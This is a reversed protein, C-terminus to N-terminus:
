AVDAVELGQDGVTANVEAFVRELDRREPCLGYLAFGSGVAENAVQVQWVYGFPIEVFASPDNDFDDELSELQPSWVQRTNKPLLMSINNMM